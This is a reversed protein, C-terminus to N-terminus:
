KAPNSKINLAEAVLAAQERQHRAASGTAPSAAAARGAYIPRQGKMGAHQMAEEIHENIFHWSGMNRPEEQAWVIEAKPTQELVAAITRKPFPYLQEIRVIKVDDKEAKARADPRIRLKEWSRRFYSFVRTNVHELQEVPALKAHLFM